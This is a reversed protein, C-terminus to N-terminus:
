GGFHPTLKTIASSRKLRLLYLHTFTHKHKEGHHLREAILTGVKSLAHFRVLTEWTETNTSFM